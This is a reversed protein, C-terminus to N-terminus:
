DKDIVKYGTSSYHIGFEKKAGRHKTVDAIPEVRYVNPGYQAAVDRNTSSWALNDNGPVVTEGPHFVHSTGHYFDQNNRGM